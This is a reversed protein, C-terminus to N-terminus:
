NNTTNEYELAEDLIYNRFYWVMFKDRYQQLEENFGEDIMKEEAQEETMGLVETCFRAIKSDTFMDGGENNNFYNEAFEILQQKM